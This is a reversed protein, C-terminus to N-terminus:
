WRANSRFGEQKLELACNLMQIKGQGHWRPDMLIRQVNIRDHSISWDSWMNIEGRVQLLPLVALDTTYDVSISHIGKHLGRLNTLQPNDGINFLGVSAPCDNVHVCDVGLADLDKEVHAHACDWSLLPNGSVNMHGHVHDPAHALSTLKNGQVFYDTMVVKPAGRLSRLNKQRAEFKGEVTHISIVDPILGQPPENILWLDGQVHIVGTKDDVHHTGKVRFWKDFEAQIQEVNVM